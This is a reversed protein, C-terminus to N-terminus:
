RAKKVEAYKGGWFPPCEVAINLYFNNIMRPTTRAVM